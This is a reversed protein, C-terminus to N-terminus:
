DDSVRMLVIAGPLSGRLPLVTVRCTVSRGRRTLAPVDVEARGAGDLLADRVLDGLDAVPLGIDLSLFGVGVTEDERLGWLDEAERSWIRVLGDGDVVAVALGISTLITELFGNVDHLDLTRQRLEDNISGLEDNTSQLEENMTELEENTSQLEENTTELEENTSQLEENTTELEEVTSQLEEYASGLEARVRELEHEATRQVTVDLFAVSVGILEAGDLLPVLRVELERAGGGDDHLWQVRELRVPRRGDMVRAIPTRLDAPRYSVELDKLPRGVDDEGIGLLARAERNALALTAKGDVVLQAIPAADLADAGLGHAPVPNGGGTPLPLPELLRDRLGPKLVKSFVRRRMDVPRFHETHAILMESKGLFLYGTDHLAFHFRRLIRGQTEANFYMLTNRCVLLDVRSIPADQVLDNRGFIVTRRLDRRFTYHSDTREFYRERAAAPMDDAAKASYVGHRAAALADEDVDTAYIKVRRLYEAEGLADALVMSTTYTEEGTACGASWVRLPADPPRAELIRPLIDGTLYEWAPPDRFFGTVNILITDFLQPFEDPHVELHDIYDLHSDVGLEQMRKAVRRELSARKYGSFDFGRTSKLYDLLADFPNEGDVTRIQAAEHEAM